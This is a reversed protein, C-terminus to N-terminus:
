KPRKMDVAERSSLYPAQPFSVIMRRWRTKELIGERFDKAHADSQGAEVNHVCANKFWFIESSLGQEIVGEYKSLMPRFINFFPLPLPTQRKKSGFLIRM